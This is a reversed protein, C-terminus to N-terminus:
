RVVLFFYLFASSMGLVTFAVLIGATRASHVGHQMYEDEMPPPPRHKVASHWVAGRVAALAPVASHAADHIPGQFYTALMGAQGPMQGPQM